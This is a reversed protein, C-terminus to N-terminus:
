ENNGWNIADAEAVTTTAAITERLARGRQFVRAVHLGLAEGVSIMAAADLTVVSNDQLTWPMSFSQSKLQAIVALQTAGTIREKDAQFTGISCSFDSQEAESRQRKIRAWARLQATNLTDSQDAVIAGGFFPSDPSTTLWVEVSNLIPATLSSAPMQLPSNWSPRAGALFAAENVYSSIELAAMTFPANSSIQKVCHFTTIAHNDPTYDKLIM